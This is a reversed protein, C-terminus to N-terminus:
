TTKMWWRFNDNNNTLYITSVNVVILLTSRYRVIISKSSPAEATIHQHGDGNSSSSTSSATFASSLAPLEIAAKDASFIAASSPLKAEEAVATEVMVVAPELTPEVTGSNSTM